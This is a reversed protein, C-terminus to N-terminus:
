HVKESLESWAMVIKGGLRSRYQRALRLPQALRLLNLRLAGDECDGRYGVKFRGFPHSLMWVVAILRQLRPYRLQALSRRFHSRAARPPPRQDVVAGVTMNAAHSAAWYIHELRKSAFRARVFETDMDPYRAVLDAMDLMLQLSIRGLVHFRNQLQAHFIAHLLRHAPAPIRLQVGELRAPVAASWVEDTPLLTRQRGFTRHLDIPVPRRPHFMNQAHAQRDESGSFSYGASILAEAAAEFHSQEVLIDLDLPMRNSTEGGGDALFAAGKIAMPVINIENLLGTVELLQARIAMNRQTNAEAVLQAYDKFGAPVFCGSRRLADQLYGGVMQSNAQAALASWNAEDYGLRTLGIRDPEAGHRLLACLSLFLDDGSMPGTPACLQQRVDVPPPQHLPPVSMGM